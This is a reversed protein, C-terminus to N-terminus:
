LLGGSFLDSWIKEPHGSPQVPRRTIIFGWGDRTVRLIRAVSSSRKQELATPEVLRRCVVSVWALMVATADIV